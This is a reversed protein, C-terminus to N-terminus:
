AYTRYKIDKFLFDKRKAVIPNVQTENTVPLKANQAGSNTVNESFAFPLFFTSISSYTYNPNSTKVKTCYFVSKIFTDYLNNMLAMVSKSCVM